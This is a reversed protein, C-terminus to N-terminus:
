ETILFVALHGKAGLHQNAERSCICVKRQPEQVAALREFNSLLPQMIIEVSLHALQLSAAKAISAIQSVTKETAM